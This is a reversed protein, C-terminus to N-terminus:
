AAKALAAEYAARQAINLPGGGVGTYRLQVPGVGAASAAAAPGPAPAAQAQVSGGLATTCAVAVAPLVARLGRQRRM